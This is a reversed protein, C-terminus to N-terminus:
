RFDELRAPFRAYFPLLGPQMEKAIRRCEELQEDHNQASSVASILRNHAASLRQFGDSAVLATDGVAVFAQMRGSLGRLALQGADLFAMGEAARAVEPGVLIDCDAHRCMTEIRAARNVTEGVVSYNYREASGMNGVCAQGTVVGIAMAISEEGEAKRSENFAALADRMRIAARCAAAPHDPVEIPANWFAMISDGIYKDITGREDLIEGSLDSFVSNLFGVLAQAEMRESIPTFNRIDGFLVTVERTEGGLQLTHGRAEIEALVDESVYKSFSRRILRKERDAVVYQFTALVSFALFGGILPFTADLLLGSRTFGVWSAILLASGAIVGAIVAPIAGTFALTLVVLLGLGLMAALETGAILDSRYLFDETLIQEIIQAHISVGPVQEGLPTARIDFLGAASTGVFVISGDIAPRLGSADSKLVDSASVYLDPDDARFRVRLRGNEDTPVEFEAVQVAELGPGDSIGRLVVTTEGLAVRLAEVALSPIPGQQGSWVLPVTRVIGDEVVASLGINGVGLAAAALDPVVPTASRMALLRDSPAPGISVFGAIAPESPQGDPGGDALGLVVAGGVWRM